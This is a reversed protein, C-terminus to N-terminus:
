WSGTSVHSFCPHIRYTSADDIIGHKELECLTKFKLEHEGHAYNCREGFPCKTGRLYHLCMETKIKAQRHPDNKLNQSLMACPSFSLSTSDPSSASLTTAVSANEGSSPAVAANQRSRDNQLVVSGHSDKRNHGIRPLPPFHQNKNASALAPPPLNSANLLKEKKPNEQSLARYGHCPQFLTCYESYEPHSFNCITSTPSVQMRPKITDERGSCSQWSSNRRDVVFTPRHGSFSYSSSRSALLTGEVNYSPPWPADAIPRFMFRGDQSSLLVNQVKKSAPHSVGSIVDDYDDLHPVLLPYLYSSDQM